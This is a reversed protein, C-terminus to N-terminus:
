RFLTVIGHINIVSGSESFSCKWVYSGQDGVQGLYRGNWGKTFDNTEFIKQGYRNFIIMSFNELDFANLIRFVDNKGDNNPTFSNPIYWKCSNASIKVMASASGCANTVDVTYVGERTVTYQNNTSGDQWLYSEFIGPSLILPKSMCIATDVGIYPRPSEDVTLMLNIMSDCGNITSLRVLYNGPLSYGLYSQGNCISKNEILNYTPNVTLNLTRISDCGNSAVLTDRYIGTNTYGLYSQGQCISNTLTAYKKPNVSLNLTRISDCGNAAILTDTYIGPLTHGNYNQGECITAAVSSFSKQKITLALNIISDCNDSAILTDSYVGSTTYTQGNWTYSDCASVTLTSNSGGVTLNLTLTSDCNNSNILTQTYTGSSNYTIGNLTYSNCAFHNITSYTPNACRVMKHIFIGGGAIGPTLYYVGPGPDFDVTFGYVGATYVNGLDDLVLSLAYDESWSGFGVAWVFNGDADLRCIFVDSTFANGTATMNFVGPGPDFDQTYRFRGTIFINGAPDLKISANFYSSYAGGGTVKMWLTDGDQDFKTVYGVSVASSYTYFNQNADVVISGGMDKKAWVFNGAADLKSVFPTTSNFPTVLNYVAPGPDFDVTGEFYGSTYINGNNDLAIYQGVGLYNGSFVKGFIYNGANDLKEVFCNTVGNSGQNDVGPGPDMDTIGTVNGTIIVNGSGDLVIGLGIGLNDGGIQRAWNFNGDTDLKSIFVATLEPIATGTVLNYVGPGPDFDATATFRGTTYVNGAMDVQLSTVISARVGGLRAGWIFNGTPDLKCIFVNELQPATLNFVGPGPDVDITNRFNGTLYVNKAADVGVLYTEDGSFGSARDISKAWDFNVLQAFPLLTLCCLPISLVVAKVLFFQWIQKIYFPM